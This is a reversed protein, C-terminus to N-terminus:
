RGRVFVKADPEYDEEGGWAQGGDQPVGIEMKLGLRQLKLGWM